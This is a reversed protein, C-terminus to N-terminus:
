NLIDSFKYIGPKYNSIAQASVLAGQAFCKRSLAEHKFFIEKTNNYFLIKHIGFVNKARNSVIEISKIKKNRDVAEVFHNLEIATGSPKDIKEAHHSEEILCHLDELNKDLFLKVSEKLNNVGISMNAALLVPIINSANNIKDIQEIKFGTTGIVIPKKNHICQELIKSTSIPHSFDIVVDAASISDEINIFNSSETILKIISQGMKGSSGNLYVKHM